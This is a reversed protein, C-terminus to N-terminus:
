KKPNQEFPPAFFTNVLDSVHSERAQLDDLPIRDPLPTEEQAFADLVRAAIMGVGAVFPLGFIGLFIVYHM